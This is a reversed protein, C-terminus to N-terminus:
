VSFYKAEPHHFVFADTSQEPHLMCSTASSSAWGSPACCSRCRAATRWTPARPTASRSARVATSSSSCGPTTRRAGRGRLGARLPHACALVGRAGRHAAHGPRQARLLRPVPEDAFLKATVEDIHAGATVLQVPLVDIQARSARASSTPSACTGTAASARSTSGCGSPASRVAQVATPPSCARPASSATPITATTCCSWRTRGRLGGPLLRLRRVRRAHGRRPHPGALLAPAAPGRTRGAGRLLRRGRRPRAQPGVAGHVHRARRPLGRLRAARRRPRHAHGLVAARARPQRRRRRLAGPM